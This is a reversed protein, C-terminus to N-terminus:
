RELVSLRARDEPVVECTELLTVRAHLIDEQPQEGLLQSARAVPDDLGMVYVGLSAPVYRAVTLRTRRSSSFRPVTARWRPRTVTRSM